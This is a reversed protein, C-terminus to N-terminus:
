PALTLTSDAAQQVAAPSWPIMRYQGHLWGAVQDDWHNSGVQGSEGPAFILQMQEWDGADNIMRMSPHSTQRYTHPGDKNETFGGTAVTYADGPMPYPGINLLRDLPKAVGLTHAFTITHLAGWSWKAPDAGQGTTLIGAAEQLSKRLIDDRTEHQPTRTDDWWANNPDAVLKNLLIASEDRLTGLYEAALTGGLDDAFTNTM